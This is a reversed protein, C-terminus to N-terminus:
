YGEESLMKAFAELNEYNSTWTTYMVGIIGQHSKAMKLWQRTHAIPQDYYGAILQRHGRSEFFQLSEKAKSGQNWNVVVTKESLGEWSGLLSGDVLYYNDPLANHHPDFMDSWVFVRAEPSSEKLLRQCFAVNDAAIRGPTRKTDKCAQCYNMVRWEDHQMMYNEAGWLTSVDSAQRKLLLQFGPESVCACVQGEYIVHPHFYSIRLRTGDPVAKTHLTAPEHWADYEGKYPVSGMMPDSFPQFDTGEVMTKGDETRVVFPAGPRRLVNVLGTEELRPSDWILTGEHGGWVGFYITAKSHHLSNFSLHVDRWNQDTKVTVDTFQLQRGDAIVKIEPKGSRFRETKVRVSIHYQRWPKIQIAQSFRANAKCPTSTFENGRQVITQDVFSWRPKLNVDPDPVHAAIDDKVIFLAEKVPLGEALNPDNSLLDNSYGVGFLAPVVKIGADAAAQKVARVNDFYRQPLTPIRAFKSDTLLAHTYGAKKARDILGTVRAVQEVLLYNANIYVWREGAIASLAAVLCFACTVATHRSM